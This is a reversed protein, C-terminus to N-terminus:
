VLIKGCSHSEEQIVIGMVSCATDVPLCNIIFSFYVKVQIGQKLLRSQYFVILTTVHLTFHIYGDLSAVLMLSNAMHKFKLVLGMCHFKLYWLRHMGSNM